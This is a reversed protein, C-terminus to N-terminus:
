RCRRQLLDRVLARFERQFRLLSFRANAHEQARRSFERRQNIDILQCLADHIAPEDACLFGTGEVIQERFGGLNDVIPICGARMAEACVRGFSEVCGPQRYLLVDWRWLHQRAMWGASYFAARGRCAEKLTAQMAPPCGVFEWDILPFQEALQSYFPILDAPWKHPQPTCIRGVILRERRNRQSGTEPQPPVPVPQYLVCGDPEGCETALWQSCYVHGDAQGRQGASHQYQIAPVEQPNVMRDAVANHWLILDPRLMTMQGAAIRPGALVRVDGFIRQTEWTPPSFFWVSHQWNPLARAVTWACAATGGCINGVNCVQLLHM